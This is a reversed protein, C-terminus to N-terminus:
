KSRKFQPHPAPMTMVGQETTPQLDVTNEDGNQGYVFILRTESVGQKDVLYKIITNVRDWSLQQSRKDSERGYGVVKVKCSPNALMTKAIDTLSRKATETLKISGNQFQISPLNGINCLATDVETSTKPKTGQQWNDYQRKIEECCKPAPPEPCKGVGDADVPFCSLQTLKEKDKCDPVGDGDTDATVGHTDVPCGAPTNPEMDFQNTVGDGDDDKLNINMKIVKSPVLDGYAFELPNLWWLPPVRKKSNGINFSVGLAQYCVNDWESTFVPFRLDGSQRFYGDVYDDRTQTRRYEGSISWNKGVRYEFGVGSNFCHRLNYGGLTPRRDNVEAKTEYTGDMLNRLDKRIDVRKRGTIPINEFKYRDGAADKLDLTTKYLMPTYGAMVYLNFRSQKSHFMINNLSVLADIAPMFAQTRHAHIYGRGTPLYLAEITPSNNYNGNRQYDLGLMNYYSFSGRVSLVYGLSKRISVGFGYAYNGIDNGTGKIATPCDGDVYPFGGWIGFQLMDRPKAPFNNKNGAVFDSQQKMNRKPIYSSDLYNHSGGLQAISSSVLAVIAILLLGYKKISM